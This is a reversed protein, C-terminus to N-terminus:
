ELGDPKAVESKIGCATLSLVLALVLLLVTKKNM